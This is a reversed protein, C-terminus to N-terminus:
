IHPYSRVMEVNERSLTKIKEEMRQISLLMDENKKNLRKNKEVLPKLQVETERSRKLQVFLNYIPYVM